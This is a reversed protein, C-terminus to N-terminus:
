FGARAADLAALAGTTEALRVKATDDLGLRPAGEARRRPFAASAEAVVAERYLRLAFEAAALPAPLPMAAARRAAVAECAWLMETAFHDLGRGYAQARHFACPDATPPRLVAAQQASVPSALLSAALLAAAHRM